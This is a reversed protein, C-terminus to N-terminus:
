QFVVDREDRFLVVMQGSSRGLPLSFPFGFVIKSTVVNRGFVLCGFM